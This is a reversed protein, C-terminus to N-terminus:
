TGYSHRFLFLVEDYTFGKELLRATMALRRRLLAERRHNTLQKM